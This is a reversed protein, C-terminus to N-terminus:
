ARQFQQRGIHLVDLLLHGLPDLVVLEIGLDLNEALLALIFGNLHNLGVFPQVILTPREPFDKAGIKGVKLPTGRQNRQVGEELM